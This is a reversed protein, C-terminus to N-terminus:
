KLGAKRLADAFRATNAPDIHARTKAFHEVSFKPDIRLVEAAATHAEDQLGLVSYTSALVIYAFVNDPERHIAKQCATIAEEYRGAERYAMGLRHLYWSPPIPNLKIAKELSLIAEQPRGAFNLALAFWAHADASNPDLAIAKEAEAIADEHRRKVTYINSLLGHAQPSTDDLAISKQALEFARNKSEHPSKSWKFWVDVWHTWGLLAYAMAYEPDLAIAEEYMQRARTNDEINLRRYAEVGQLVALFAELNDTGKGFLRAGEGETLKVQLATIIKKTIEDQVAFIDELDRDYREAWLHNGTQADVLQATVRVRNGAKRVSGELVYHVGLERAVQQVKVPKGKYTFTSNRAIVLINPVKSLATIIEETVGDSFYEQDPNESMNVFPLVAISRKDPLTFESNLEANHEGSEMKIRYVRIPKKINKAAQEGLYEFELGLKDEVQDYATGSICISGPDALAELRAAINVGDGYIRDKDEIVDGLNVGIRFQMKRNEPLEANRVRLEEQIEVACRVGDVVSGFDALLNDGPSDVIRGRHENILTFMVGKYDELTRVTSDEDEGMLRSYEAVDASLIAYLKREFEQPTMADGM